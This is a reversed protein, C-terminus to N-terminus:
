DACTDAPIRTGEWILVNDSARFIRVLESTDGYYFVVYREGEKGFIKCRILKLNDFCTTFEKTIPTAGLFEKPLCSNQALLIKTNVLAAILSATLGIEFVQRASKRRM